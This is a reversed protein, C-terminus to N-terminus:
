PHRLRYFVTPNAPRIPFNTSNLGSSGAVDFWANTPTTLGINLGNTQVQLIWGLHTTPWGVTLTSGSVTATINTSYNAMTSAVSLAQISGDVALKNTWNMGGGTVTLAAGNSVAQSFVTFKDGVVLAPGLNTVTITGTGSNTLVGSVVALDNSQLLSKNLKFWGNGALTLNNNITLTGIAATGPALTGSADVAVAGLITGTGGLSGNTVTITGVDNQGNIWLKGGGLLTPGTYTNLGSLVLTGSGTKTIGCVTGGDSVVGSFTTLGTNSVSFPRNTDGTNDAGSLTLTGSFTLDNSGTISVTVTNTASTYIIPNGVTHAGGYAFFSCNGGEAGVNIGINGKSAPGSDITPPSSSVSDAGFGVNGSSMLLSYGTNLTATDDFTNQAALIANGNGRPVIRGYTGSIVGNYVQDGSALYPALEIEAGSSSLLLNANNTFAGLLRLRSTVTNANANNITLTRGPNGGLAGNLVCAYTGSSDYQLTSDTVTVLNNTLGVGAAGSMPVELKGGALNIPSTGLPNSYTRVLITGGSITTGGTFANANSITLVGSGSMLLAGSGALIGSGTFAYNQSANETILGPAVYTGTISVVPNTSTDDFFVNDGGHFVVSTGTENTFNLTSAVDWNTNPNGGQWVITAPATLTLSNTSSTASLGCSNTIICYYGQAATAVDATTAPSIFLTATAAGAVHGSDALGVGNRYWRYNLGSGTAVVTFAGASHTAVQLPQPQTTIVPGALVTVAVSNTLWASNANVTNSAVVTYTATVSQPGFSVPSGTGNITQGTFVSNTYLLYVNTAVSGNVGVAFVDGPCGAGGGTVAFLPGPSPSAPTVNAWNNDVRIEDYFVQMTPTSSPAYLAIAPITTVDAGSGAYNAFSINPTPISANNGLQFPDLWLSVIDNTTAGAVYTYAIVVLHTTNLPLAVTTNTAPTTSNIKSLLLQGASNVWVAPCGQGPNPTGSSSSSLGFIARNASPYSKLNILVSAYVTGSTQATFPAVATRGVGTPGSVGMPMVSPDPLLGIYALAANTTITQASSASNGATWNTGSSGALRLNEGQTYESFPEYVPFTFQAHVSQLAMVLACSTILRKCLHQRSKGAVIMNHNTTKMPQIKM